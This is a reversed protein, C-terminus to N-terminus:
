AGGAFLVFGAPQLRRAKILPSTGDEVFSPTGGTHIVSKWASAQKWRWQVFNVERLRCDLGTQLGCKSFKDGHLSLAQPLSTSKVWAILKIVLANRNNMQEMSARSFPMRGVFGTVHNQNTQKIWCPEHATNM